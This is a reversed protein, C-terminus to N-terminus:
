LCGYRVGDSYSANKNSSFCRWWIWSPMRLVKRLGIRLKWDRLKIKLTLDRAPIAPLSHASVKALYSAQLLFLRGAWVVMRVAHEPPLGKLSTLQSARSSISWCPDSVLAQWCPMLNVWRGFRWAANFYIIYLILIYLIYYIICVWIM